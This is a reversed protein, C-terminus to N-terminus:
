FAPLFTIITRGIFYAFAFMFFGIIIKTYLEERKKSKYYNKERIAQVLESDLYEM